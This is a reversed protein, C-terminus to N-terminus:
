CARWGLDVSGRDDAANGVLGTGQNGARGDSDRVCGSLGLPNCFGVRRSIVTDLEQRRAFVIQRDLGFAELPGLLGRDAQKGAVPGLNVENELHAFDGFAHGDGLGDRKHLGLFRFAPDYDLVLLNQLHREVAAVETLQDFQLGSDHVAAPANVEVAERAIADVDGHVARVSRM